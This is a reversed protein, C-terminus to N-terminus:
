QLNDLPLNMQGCVNSRVRSSPWERLHEAVNYLTLPLMTLKGVTTPHLLINYCSAHELSRMYGDEIVLLIGSKKKKQGRLLDEKAWAHLFQVVVLWVGFIVCMVGNEMQYVCFYERFGIEKFHCCYELWSYTFTGSTSSLIHM